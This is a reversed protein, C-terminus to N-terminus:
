FDTPKKGEMYDVLYGYGYHNDEFILFRLVKEDKKESSSVCRQGEVTAGL